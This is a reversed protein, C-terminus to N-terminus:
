GVELSELNFVRFPSNMCITRETYDSNNTKEDFERGIVTILHRGVVHCAHGALPKRKSDKGILFWHFAPITLVWVDQCNTVEEATGRVLSRCGYMYIEWTKGDSGLAACGDLFYVPLKPEDTSTSQVYWKDKEIDYLDM